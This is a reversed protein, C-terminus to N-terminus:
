GRCDPLTRPALRHRPRGSTSQCTRLGSLPNPCMCRHACSARPTGSGLHRGGHQSVPGSYEPREITSRSGPPDDAGPRLPLRVLDRRGTSEYGYPLYDDVLVAPLEDPDHTQYKMTQREVGSLTTGSERAEIIGVAQRHVFLVYDAPGPTTVLERVAVGM